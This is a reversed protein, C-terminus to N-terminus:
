QELARTLRAGCLLVLVGGTCAIAAHLSWFAAPSMREYFSGIWGILTNALAISMYAIGMLTANVRAPASRSVLALLTPWYYLFAVGLVICYLLPWVPSVLRAPSALIAGALILNSLATLWAGIGI